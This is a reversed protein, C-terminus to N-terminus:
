QSPTDDSGDSGQKGYKNLANQYFYYGSLITGLILLTRALLIAAIIAAKPGEISLALFSVMLAEYGGVGGPTFFFVGALGALGYAILLPAPNIPTGLALFTVWFMAVETITFVVGWWFPKILVRPSDILECYDSHLDEFFQLVKAHDVLPQPRRLVSRWIRNTIATIGNAAKHLRSRSQIIYVVIVTGFIISSALGSSVLITIRNISGDITIAFVAVIMLALFAIFTMALRVAQALTARGASVGLHRLRWTMYSAGSVGGSPLIHNVFNLELAMKATEIGSIKLEYKDRLYSFIMAGAAYYSLAQLPIILALVWLNVQSLLQWAHMLELRALYIIAAVLVFTIISLWTKGSIRRHM